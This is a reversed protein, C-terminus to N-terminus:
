RRLTSLYDVAAHLQTVAYEINEKGTGFNFRVFRDYQPGFWSGDNMAINARQGFFRSLLGGEVGLRPDYVEPYLSADHQVDEYLSSCDILGIFSAEPLVFELPALERKLYSATTTIYRRLQDLWPGGHTYAAHTMETALLGVKFYFSDVKHQFARQHEKNNFHVFSIHEGPINFTKSPSFCTACEVGMKRAVKEFPIHTHHLHVLDAHIEDSIVKTAHRQLVRSVDSLELSTFVRGTPNHPSCFLLLPSAHKVILTELLDTDLTYHYAKNEYVMPWPIITRELHQLLTVFPKYAPTPLIVADGKNSLIEVLTAVSHLMGSSLIVESPDISWNHRKLVWQTFLEGMKSPKPYGLVGHHAQHYLAQQVEKPVMFDTDAVWFPFADPNNCMRAIADKDYKVALSHTRNVYQLLPYDRM